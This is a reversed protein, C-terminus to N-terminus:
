YTKTSFFAGFETAYCFVKQHTSWAKLFNSICNCLQDFVADQNPMPQDIIEPSELEPVWQFQYAVCGFELGEQIPVPGALELPQGLLHQVQLDLGARVIGFLVSANGHQNVLSELLVPLLADTLLLEWLFLGLFLREVSVCSDQGVGVRPNHRSRATEKLPASEHCAGTSFQHAFPPYLPIVQLACSIAPIFLFLITFFFRWFGRSSNIGRM